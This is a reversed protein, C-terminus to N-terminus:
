VCRLYKWVEPIELDIYKFSVPLDCATENNSWLPIWAFRFEREQEYGRPKVFVGSMDVGSGKLEHLARPTKERYSVPEYAGGIRDANGKLDLCKEVIVKQHLHASILKSFGAADVVEVVNQGFKQSLAEDELADISACFIFVNVDSDIKLVVGKQLTVKFKTSIRYRVGIEKMVCNLQEGSLEVTGEQSHILAGIPGETVDLRESSEINKRYYALSGIRIVGRQLSEFAEDNFRKVIRM